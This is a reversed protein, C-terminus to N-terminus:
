RSEPEKKRNGLDGTHFCGFAAPLARDAVREPSLLRLEDSTTLLRCSM